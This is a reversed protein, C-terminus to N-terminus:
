LLSQNGAVIDPCCDGNIRAQKYIKAARFFNPAWEDHGLAHIHTYGALVNRFNLYDMGRDIGVGRSLNLAFLCHNEASLECRSYHFEHGHVEYGVPFFPNNKVIKGQVYGHGQPKNGVKTEVPLIGAMHFKQGAYFLNQGLYMFGGCEAFVPLGQNILGSLVNKLGHNESLGLGLTEPFGGGLYLGHIEPWPKKDLLSLQVVNAGCAKLADINEQYYFWLAADSVYGIVVESIQTRPKGDFISVPGCSEPAKAAIDLLAKTDLYDGAVSSLFSFIKDTGCFEQDSILGMHREPIPNEKIKPLEGLVPLDTYSEISRRLISRHRNGATQNLIVGAINLGPEFSKCGQIIAAMTRTVKTCDVILVVPAALLRALEATSFTGQVDKGDFLGRNGEVIAFDFNRAYSWFLRSVKSSSFLFPDLNSAEHGAALSLWKADIYDPGKKFPKIKYAQEHLARCLSLSVITKGSGGKLGALVLRPFKM